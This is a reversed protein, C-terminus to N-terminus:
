SEEHQLFQLFRRGAATIRHECNKAINEPSLNHSNLPRGSGSIMGIGRQIFRYDSALSELVPILQSDQDEECAQEATVSERIARFHPGDEGAAALLRLVHIHIESFDDLARLFTLREDFPHETRTWCAAIMHAFARRKWERHERAVRNLADELLQMEAEGIHSADYDSPILRELKLRLQDLTEEIRQHRRNTDWDSWLSAVVGGFPLANLGARV